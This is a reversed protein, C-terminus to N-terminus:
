EYYVLWHVHFIMVLSYVILVLGLSCAVFKRSRNRMRWLVFGLMDPLSLKVAIFYNPVKRHAMADDRSESLSGILCYIISEAYFRDKIM